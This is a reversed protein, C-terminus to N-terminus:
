RVRATSHRVVLEGFLEREAPGEGLLALAVAGVKATPLSITTLPPDVMSAMPVDDIGVVSINGKKKKL